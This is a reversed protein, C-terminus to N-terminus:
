PHNLARDEEQWTEAKVNEHFPILYPAYISSFTSLELLIM